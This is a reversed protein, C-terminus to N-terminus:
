LVGCVRCVNRHLQKFLQMDLLLGKYASLGKDSRFM